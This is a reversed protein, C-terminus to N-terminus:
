NMRLHAACSEIAGARRQRAPAPKTKAALLRLFRRRAEDALENKLRLALSLGLGEVWRLKRGSHWRTDDVEEPM